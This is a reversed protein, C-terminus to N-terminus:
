ELCYVPKPGYLRFMLRVQQDDTLNYPTKGNRDKKFPDAGHQLLLKVTEANGKQGAACHLPTRGDSDSVTPCAGHELLLTANELSRYSSVASFLPTQGSEGRAEVDAGRSLLLRIMPENSRFGIAYYLPTLGYDCTENVSFGQDLLYQVLERNGSQAALHLLSRGSELSPRKQLERFFGFPGCDSVEYGPFRYHLSEPVLRTYFVVEPLNGMEAANRVGYGQIVSSYVTLGLCLWFFGGCLGITIQAADNWNAESPIKKEPLSFPNRERLFLVGAISLGTLWHLNAIFFHDAFFARKWDPRGPFFYFDASFIVLCRIALATFAGATAMRKILQRDM